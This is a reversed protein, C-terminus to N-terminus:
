AGSMGGSRIIKMPVAGSAQALKCALVKEDDDLLATEIIVKVIAGHGHSAM